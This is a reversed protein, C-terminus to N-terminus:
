LCGIQGLLAQSSKLEGAYEANLVREYRGDSYDQFDWLGSNHWHTRDEWDFRDLIPYLCVGELPVGNLRAKYVEAAIERLWAARGSGYHSTEAIFIPREYRSYAEALLLHLPMWRDDLPGADWRLKTGGPVEWQNAAYYNLGVIDLYEPRGGLEPSTRGAIMDWAEFQSNRQRLAPGANEPDSLPPVNHILPEPFIFRARKDESRIAEIAAIAARVLQCKLEGDHGYAYPYMLDRTAAWAFFSIENVPSFFPVADSENKLFRAAAKAFRAFRDIFAPALIDLDDPWGYHCVDWIVQIGQERAARVMPEWTSFDYEGRREILHWRLGDRATLIGVTRLAAYDAAAYRDHQIAATMDLRRGASNIHCSCEFGAMWFSQFVSPPAASREMQAMQGDTSLLPAPKLTTVDLENM